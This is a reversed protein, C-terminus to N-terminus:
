CGRTRHSCRTFSTRPCFALAYSRSATYKDFCVLASLFIILLSDNFCPCESRQLAVNCSLCNTYEHTSFSMSTRCCVIVKVAGMNVFGEGQTDMEVEGEVAETDRRVRSRREKTHGNSRLVPAPEERIEYVRLVNTRAVVLNCCVKSVEQTATFTENDPNSAKTSPTLNLSTAFEVGSPRLLGRRLAYM